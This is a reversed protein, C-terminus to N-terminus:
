LSARGIEFAVKTLLKTVNVSTPTLRRKLIRLLLKLTVACCADGCSLLVKASCKLLLLQTDAGAQL